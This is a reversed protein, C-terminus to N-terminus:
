LRIRQPQLSSEPIIIADCTYSSPFHTKAGTLASFSLFIEIQKENEARIRHNESKKTFFSLFLGKKQFFHRQQEQLPPFRSFFIEFSKKRKRGKYSSKRIKKFFHCFFSM